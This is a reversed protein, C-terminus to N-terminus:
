EKSYQRTDTWKIKEYLMTSVAQRTIVPDSDLMQRYRRLELFSAYTGQPNVRSLLAARSIICGSGLYMNRPFQMLIDM